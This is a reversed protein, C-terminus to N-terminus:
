KAHQSERTVKRTKLSYMSGPYCTSLRQVFSALDRSDSLNNTVAYHLAVPTIACGM